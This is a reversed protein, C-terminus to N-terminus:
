VSKFPPTSLEAEDRRLKRSKRKPSRQSRSRAKPFILDVPNQRNQYPRNHVSLSRSLQSVRARCPPLETPAKTSQVQAEPIPAPLGDPHPVESPKTPPAATAVKPTPKPEKAEIVEEARRCRAFLEAEVESRAKAYRERSVTIVQERTTAALSAEPEEPLPVSLNFDGDSREIRCLAEGKELNQIDKADFSAFGKALTHADADGVRFVIRTCPHSMVASAVDPDRQLQHLEHHALVLGFRYKRTGSLIEALSPTILDQFEDIYLWFDRREAVNLRQRNMFLQQFKSVLLSGLLFANENGMVGKPLKALFIKGRDLIEAFDLRNAVQSVIHRIPKPGLFTDLRTLVPGISRNGGLQPFAKQWYYVIDPDGVTQLFDNRFAADILFHRLDSLTGGRTSELVARIANSLVSNLQDGWSSSLRRFVSVLDSALLNKEFDSHASLINFGISFEEDTPDFFIVDHIRHSPVVGLIRDALDGHPDLVALGQGNEMDQRIM